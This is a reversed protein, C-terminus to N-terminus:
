HISLQTAAARVEQVVIYDVSMLLSNFVFLCVFVGLVSPM